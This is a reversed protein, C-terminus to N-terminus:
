SDSSLRWDHLYLTRLDSHLVGGQQQSLLDERLSLRIPPCISIGLIELYWVRLAWDPTVLIVQAQDLKLLRICSAVMGLLRLILRVSIWSQSQFMLIM